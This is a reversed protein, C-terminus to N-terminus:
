IFYVNFITKIILGTTFLSCGIVGWFMVIESLGDPNEKTNTYM